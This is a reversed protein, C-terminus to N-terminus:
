RRPSNELLRLQPCSRPQCREPQAVGLMTFYNGSVIETDVLQSSNNYTFSSPTSGTAILGSFVSNRDRLDKYMPYSFYAQPDGGRDMFHGQWATGTGELVVLQKPDRVPLSRLLAQDLLSFIATNAGIGLALTLVATLALAPSRRLQRLAFKLDNTITNM